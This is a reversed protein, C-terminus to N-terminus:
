EGLVPEFAEEPRPKLEPHRMLMRACANWRLVADDNGAPRKKEAEDFYTMAERLLEYATFGSGPVGHRFHWKGIRESIIGSYYAREYDDRLRPIVARAEQVTGGAGFQDTRALLLMVLAEQNEPDVELIDLCISEAESPENLLRYREVKNLAEPIGEKSIPKLDWGM